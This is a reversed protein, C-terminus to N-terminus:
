ASEKKSITTRTVKRGMTINVHNIREVDIEGDLYAQLLSAVLQAMPIGDAHAKDRVSERMDARPLRVSLVRTDSESPAAKRPEPKAAKVTPRRGPRRQYSSPLTEPYWWGDPAKIGGMERKITESRKFMAQRSIGLRRATEAETVYGTLLDDRERCLASVNREVEFPSLHRENAQREM